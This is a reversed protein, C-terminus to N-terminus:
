NGSMRDGEKGIHFRASKRNSLRSLDYPEGNFMISVGNVFGLRVNFPTVGSVTHSMGKKGLRYLLRQSRSDSVDVWSDETFYLSLESFGTNPINNSSVDGLQASNKTAVGPLTSSASSFPAPIAAKAVNKIEEKKESPYKKPASNITAIKEPENEHSVERSSILSMNKEPSTLVVSSKKTTRIAINKEDGTLFVYGGVILVVIVFGLGVTIGIGNSGSLSMNLSSTKGVQGYDNAAPSSAPDLSPSQMAVLAKFDAVIDDGSLNVLKAYSRLYGAVFVPAAISEVEGQELSEIKKVSLKLHGAVEERTLDCSERARRLRVGPSLPDNSDSKGAENEDFNSM